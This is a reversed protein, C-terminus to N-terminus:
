LYTETKYTEFQLVPWGDVFTTVFCDGAAIVPEIKSVPVWSGCEAYIAPMAMPGIPGDCHDGHGTNAIWFALPEGNAKWRVGTATIAHWGSGFRTAIGESNRTHGWYTYGCYQCPYGAQILLGMETASKISARDKAKHEAAFPELWDPVGGGQDGWTIALNTERELNCEKGADNAYKKRYLAGYKRCAEAVAYGTAGSGHYRFSNVLECKAFGYISEGAVLADPQRIKAAKWLVAMLVDLLHQQMWRTCDGTPQMGWHWTPWAAFLAPWLATDRREDQALIAPAAEALPRPPQKPADTWIGFNREGDPQNYLRALLACRRAPIVKRARQWM